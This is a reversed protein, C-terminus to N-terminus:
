CKTRLPEGPDDGVVVMNGPAWPTVRMDAGDITRARVSWRYSACRALPAELRHETTALGYRIYHHEYIPYPREFPSAPVAGPGVLRFDYVLTGSGAQLEAPQWRFVRAGADLEPIVLNRECDLSQLPCRLAVPQEPVPPTDVYASAGHLVDDSMQEALRGFLHGIAAALAQGDERYRSPAGRGAAVRYTREAIVSNDSTRVVRMTADGIVHLQTTGHAGTQELLAFRQLSTEALIDAPQGVRLGGAARLQASFEDALAAQARAPWNSAFGPVPPLEARLADATAAGGALSALLVAAICFSVTALAGAACLAPM